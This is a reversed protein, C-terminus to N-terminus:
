DNCLNRWEDVSLLISYSAIGQMPYLSVELKEDNENKHVGRSTFYRYRRVFGDERGATADRREPQVLGM